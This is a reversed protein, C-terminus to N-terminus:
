LGYKKCKKVGGKLLMNLQLGIYYWYQEMRRDQMIFKADVQKSQQNKYKIGVFKQMLTLQKSMKQALCSKNVM